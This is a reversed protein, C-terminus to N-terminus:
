AICLGCREPERGGFVGDHRSRSRIGRSNMNLAEEPSGGMSVKMLHWQKLPHFHDAQMEYSKMM